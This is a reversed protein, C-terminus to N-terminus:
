SFPTFALATTFKLPINKLQFVEMELIGFRQNLLEMPCRQLIKLVQPTAQVALILPSTLKRFHFSQRQIQQILQAGM